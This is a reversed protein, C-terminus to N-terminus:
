QEYEEVANEFHIINLRKSPIKQISIVDIQWEDGCEPHDQIYAMASEILKVRKKGTIADEPYGFQLSRRTKVEIFIYKGKKRAIIDIEGYPTRVNRGQISYGKNELYEEAKNEGWKGVNM